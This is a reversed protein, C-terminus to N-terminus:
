NMTLGTLLHLRSANNANPGCKRSAYRPTRTRPLDSPAVIIVRATPVPPPKGHAPRLYGGKGVPLAALYGLLDGGCQRTLYPLDRLLLALSVAVPTIGAREAVQGRLWLAIQAILLVGWVQTLILEWKASWVLQLGLERKILAFLREISWRRDYLEVIQDAPLLAPDEVNTLYCRESSGVQVTVRRVRYKARDARHKGLWVREDCLGEEATFTHLVEASTGVRWRSVYHYGAETLADFWPFSFYGLDALLLAGPPLSAALEPAAGRENQRPLDTPLVTTLLQRRVDFAVSLKGPLLRDDGAPVERLTPLTRAVQALTTDDLAYVGSAFPALSTDGESRDRLEATVEAFLQQLTAPGRELLRKRVAEASVPIRPFDWLGAQSLLRWVAQQSTTGRLIGVLLGTWLLAGPLIEPRGRGTQPQTLRPILDLLVTEIADLRDPSAPTM